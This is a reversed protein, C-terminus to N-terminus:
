DIQTATVQIWITFKDLVDKNAMATDLADTNNEDNEFIWRWTIRHKEFQEDFAEPLEGPQYIKTGSEDGSLAVIGKILDDLTGWAGNDLKWQINPNAKIADIGDGFAAAEVQFTYSVEPADAQANKTFYFGFQATSTTGPAIVDERELNASKVNARELNQEEPNHLDDYYSRFLPHLTIMSSSGDTFGWYAVRASDTGSTSTVYKAYTGSVACTSMIALAMLVSAIRMMWNKRM